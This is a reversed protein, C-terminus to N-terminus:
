KCSGKARKSLLCGVGGHSARQVMAGGVRARDSWFLPNEAAKELSFVDTYMSL